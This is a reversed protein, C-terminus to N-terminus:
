GTSYLNRYARRYLYLLAADSDNPRLCSLLKKLAEIFKESLCDSSSFIEITDLIGAQEESTPSKSFRSMTETVLILDDETYYAFPIHVLSEIMTFAADDTLSSDTFLEVFVELFSHTRNEDLHNFLTRVVIKLTYRIWRRHQDTVRHGPYVIRGLYARWVDLSDDPEVMVRDPILKTIPNRYRAILKGLTEAAKRRIDGEKNSLQDYLFRSAMLKEHKTMYKSYEDLINLYARIRSSNNETRANELLSGFAAENNFISM